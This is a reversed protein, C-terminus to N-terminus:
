IFHYEIMCIYNGYQDLIDLTVFSIIHIVFLMLQFMKETFSFYIVYSYTQLCFSNTNIIFIYAILTM